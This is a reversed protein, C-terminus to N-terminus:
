WRYWWVVREERNIIALSRADIAWTSLHMPWYWPSIVTVVGVPKRYIRHEKDAIDGSLIKGSLLSPLAMAELLMARM